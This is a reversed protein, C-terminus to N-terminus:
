QKVGHALPELAQASDLPLTVSFTMGRDSNPRSEIRGNHQSVIREAISLGLGTGEDRTTFFPNFIREANEPDIGVGEDQVEFRVTGDDTIARLTANGGSPMAQVANIALNLLVQKVQEPDVCITPV